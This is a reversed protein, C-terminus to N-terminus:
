VSLVQRFQGALIVLDLGMDVHQIIVPLVLGESNNIGYGGNKVFNCNEIIIPAFSGYAIDLGHSTNNYSDCNHIVPCYSSTKFGCGVNSESICNIAKDGGLYFGHAPAASIDALASRPDRCCALDGLSVVGVARGVAVVPLRRVANDRMLDVALEIPEDPRIKTLHASCIEGICTMVPDRRNAVLRVVIDRDTLIGCVAGDDERLVLVAGVDAERMALAAEEATASEFLAIPSQTMVDEVLQSM